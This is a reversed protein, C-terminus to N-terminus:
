VHDLVERVRTTVDKMTFPKQIFHVGEDLMGRNTIVNATYGSMFLCKLNPFEALIYDALDKGNMDPMVVDTMLLDIKGSYTAAMEIAQVPSSAPLVKYNSNELMRTVIHLLEPEDEVLMITEDGAEVPEEVSMSEAQTVEAMCPPLYITFKTGKGPKSDVHIYGNNQKVIGYVTSLGLGTGDGMGKTTFFPEYIKELMEQEMGCGDDSVSLWVYEGPVADNHNGIYNENFVINGSEIRIRGGSGIADRANICLNALVQDVQIPVVNVPPVEIGPLWELSIDEGILRQLMSLMGNVIRNLDIERPAVAQKRAFALLQRTLEASREAAARIKILEAHLPQDPELQNMTLELQGLIVGLMNNFDHAVGGALRGISDMKMAQRLQEESRKREIEAQKQETVDIAMSIVLRRGDPLQGLPGSSFEWNRTEGAKTRLTSDGEHLMTDLTFLHSIGAQIDDGGKDYALSLWDSITPIDKHAYGTLKTWVDNIRLVEGDEAHIIIPFPANMIGRRFQAESEQLAQEAEKRETIDLLIGQHSTINGETDQQVVTHDDVWHIGGDPSVIRYEIQFEDVQHAADKEKAVRLIRDLDQPHVISHYSIKGSLLEEATYGFQRVNESVFEVPRDATTKWRFLVVPSSEVILNAKQLAEQSNKLDTIDEAVALYNIIKGDLNKISSISASEWYLSGDKRKNHFTGRWEHGSLLTDWLEKYESGSKEASSLLRSNKGVVEQLTYGTVEEFKPNVYEIDANADTITVTAPSQEIARSLKQLRLHLKNRQYRNICFILFVAIILLAITYARMNDYRNYPHSTLWGAKPTALLIWEGYPLSVTKTESRRELQNRDGYFVGGKIGSADEGQIALNLNLNRDLLGAARYFSATDIVISLLGWLHDRDPGVFVARRGIFGTGGQILDVPGALVINKTKLAQRVANWHAPTERYDLGVAAEKGDVPYIMRVVLDPAAAINLIEPRLGVVDRVVSTFEVQTMNPNLIIHSAIGRLLGVSGNLSGEIRARIASLQNNVQLHQELQLKELSLKEVYKFTLLVGVSIVLALIMLVISTQELWPISNKTSEM